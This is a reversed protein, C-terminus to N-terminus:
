DVIFAKCGAKSFARHPNAEDDGAAFGMGAKLEFRCGDKLEMTMEGEVVLVVHGRACWHDASYGPSYDVMRIRLDGAELVRMTATGTDGPVEAGPRRAWDIATFPLDPIRM